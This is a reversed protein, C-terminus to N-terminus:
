YMKTYLKTLLVYRTQPHLTEANCQESIHQCQTPTADSTQSGWEHLRYSDSHGSDSCWVVEALLDPSGKYCIQADVSICQHPVPSNVNVM